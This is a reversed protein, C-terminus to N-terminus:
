DPRNSTKEVAGLLTEGEVGTIHVRLVSGRRVTEEVRVPCYNDAHGAHNNEFLVPLTRGVCGELCARKLRATVAAARRVREEKVARDLQDPM